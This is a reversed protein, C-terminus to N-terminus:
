RGISNLDWPEDDGDEEEGEDAETVPAANSVQPREALTGLVGKAVAAQFMLGLKAVEERLGANPDVAKAAPAPAPAAPAAAPAAATAGGEAKEAESKMTDDEPKKMGFKVLVNELAREIATTDSKEEPPPASSEAAQPGTVGTWKSAADVLGMGITKLSDVFATPVAAGDETKAEGLMMAFGNLEELSSTVSAIMAEKTAPDLVVDEKASTAPAADPAAGEESKVVLFPELNAPRDVLSSEAVKMGVLRAKPQKKNTTSM